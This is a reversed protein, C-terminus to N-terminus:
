WRSKWGQSTMQFHRCSSLVFGVFCFSWSLRVGLLYSFGSLFIVWWCHSDATSHYICLHQSTNLEIHSFHSTNISLNRSLELFHSPLELHTYQNQWYQSISTRLAKPCIQAFSAEVLAICLLKVSVIEWFSWDISSFSMLTCTITQSINNWMCYLKIRWHCRRWMPTPRM